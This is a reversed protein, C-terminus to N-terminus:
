NGRIWSSAEREFIRRGIKAFPMTQKSLINGSTRSYLLIDALYPRFEQPLRMLVNHLSERSAFQKISILLVPDVTRTDEIDRDSSEGSDEDDYLQPLPLIDYDYVDKNFSILSFRITGLIYPIWNQIEQVPMRADRAGFQKRWRALYGLTAYTFFENSDGRVKSIIKRQASAVLCLKWIPMFAEAESKANLIKENLSLLSNPGEAAKGKTAEVHFGPQASKRAM